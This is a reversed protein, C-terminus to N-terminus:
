RGSSRQLKRLRIRELDPVAGLVALLGVLPTLVLSVLAFAARDRGKDHAIWATVGVLALWLVVLAVPGTM